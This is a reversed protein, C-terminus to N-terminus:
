SRDERFNDSFWPNKRAQLSDRLVCELLFVLDIHKIAQFNVIFLLSTMEGKKKTLKVKKVFKVEDSAEITSISCKKHVTYTKWFM